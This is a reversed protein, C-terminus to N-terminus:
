FSLLTNSICCQSTSLITLVDRMPCVEINSVCYVLVPSGECWVKIALLSVTLTKKLLFCPIRLLAGGQIFGFNRLVRETSRTLLAQNWVFQYNIYNIKNLIQKLHKKNVNWHRQKSSISNNSILKITWLSIKCLYKHSILYFLKKFYDLIISLFIFSLNLKRYM